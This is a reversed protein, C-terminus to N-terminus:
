CDACVPVAPNEPTLLAPTLPAHSPIAAVETAAVM